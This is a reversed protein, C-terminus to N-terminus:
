QALRQFAKDWQDASLAPKDNSVISFDINSARPNSLCQIICEACADRKCDGLLADGTMVDVGNAAGGQIQLLKAVDLNTFPGGVLRGPRVICYSKGSSKIAEEGAKKADLVGFLNLILFPMEGTREVGVSTVLVVKKVSDNKSLAKAIASVAIDDVAKPTNGGKWKLTPFATTGISIVVAAVGILASDLSVDDLSLLDVEQFKVNLTNSTFVEKARQVSRTTVCVEVGASALKETVLQGIGSTGGIVLVKDPLSAESAGQKTAQLQSCVIPFDRYFQIGIGRPPLFSYCHCVITGLIYLLSRQVM